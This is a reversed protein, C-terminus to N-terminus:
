KSKADEPVDGEIGEVQSKTEDVGPLKSEVGEGQSKVDDTGPVGGAIDDVKSKADEPVKSGLESGAGEAKELLEPSIDAKGITSGSEAKLNGDADIEKISTGVLERPEGEALKGIVNGTANTIEGNDQVGFPAALEPAEIDSKASDLAGTAEAIFDAKGIVNGEADLVDGEKDVMSGKLQKAKEGTVHGIVKGTEDVVRGEEDVSGAAETGEEDDINEFEDINQTGNDTADNTQSRIDDIHSSTPGAAESAKKKAAQPSGAQSSQKPFKPLNQMPRQAIDAM